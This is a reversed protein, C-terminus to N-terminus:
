LPWSAERCLYNKTDTKLTPIGLFLEVYAIYRYTVSPELFFLIKKWQACTVLIGFQFPKM